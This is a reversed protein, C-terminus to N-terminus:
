MEYTAISGETEQVDVRYCEIDTAEKYNANKWISDNIEDLAWKALNESTTNFDFIDNLYHHDLKDSIIHKIHSFDFLMGNENLKTGRIYVTFKWSHGHLNTCKSEYNLKLKHSAEVSFEKKLKYM